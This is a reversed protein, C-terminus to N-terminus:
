ERWAIPVAYQEVDDRGHAGDGVGVVVLAAQMAKWFPGDVNEVDLAAAASDISDHEHDIITASPGFYGADGAAPTFTLHTVGEETWYAFMRGPIEVTITSPEPAPKVLEPFRDVGLGGCPPYHEVLALAWGDREVTVRSEDGTPTFDDGCKQCVYFNSM